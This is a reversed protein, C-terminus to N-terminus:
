RNRGIPQIHVRVIVICGYVRRTRLVSAADYLCCLLERVMGVELGSVLHWGARAALCRVIDALTALKGCDAEPIKVGLEENLSILFILHRQPSLIDAAHVLQGSVHARPTAGYRMGLLPLCDRIGPVPRVSTSGCSLPVPNAYAPSCRVAVNPLM